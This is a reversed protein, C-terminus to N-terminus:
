ETWSTCQNEELSALQDPVHNELLASPVTRMQLAAEPMTEAPLPPIPPGAYPGDGAWNGLFSIGEETVNMAIILVTKNFFVFLKQQQLTM